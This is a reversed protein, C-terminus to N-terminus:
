QSHIYRKKYKHTRLWDFHHEAAIDDHSYRFGIFSIDEGVVVIEVVIMDM